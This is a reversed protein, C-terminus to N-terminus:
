ILRKSVLTNYLWAGAAGLILGDVLGYIAGIVSGGLSVTYFPYIDGILWPQGMHLGRLMLWWTTTLILGGGMLGGTLAVAKIDLKM